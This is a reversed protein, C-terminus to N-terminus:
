EHNDEEHQMNGAYGMHEVGAKEKNKKERATADPTAVALGLAMTGALALSLIRHSMMRGAEERMSGSYFCSAIIM